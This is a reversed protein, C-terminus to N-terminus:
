CIKLKNRKTTIKSSLPVKVKIDISYIEFRNMYIFVYIVSMNSFCIITKYHMIIKLTKDTFIAVTATKLTKM